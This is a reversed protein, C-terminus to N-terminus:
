YKKFHANETANFQVLKHGSLYCFPAQFLDQSSLDVIKEQPEIPISTYEVLSNLINSPMRVDTDWDGSLYRLRTFSFKSSKM